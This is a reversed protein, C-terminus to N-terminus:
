PSSEAEPRPFRGHAAKTVARTTAVLRAGAAALETGTLDRAFGNLTIALTVEGAPGFVPAAIVSVSYRENPALEAVAYDDRLEEVMHPVQDRLAADAPHEALGTLVRGLQERAPTELGVAYGRARIAGLLARHHDRDDSSAGRALWHEVADADAWAMFVAGLPPVLPLRQGIRVDRAHAPAVGETALIVIDDGIVVSAVGETELEAALPRMAARAGEIVGHQALAAHGVAVVSPGLGYTKHRPHRVVYGADVLAQLIALLSALNVGVRGALESLTFVQGPHAALFDLVAVTRVAAPAPRVV